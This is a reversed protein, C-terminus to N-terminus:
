IHILSLNQSTTWVDANADGDDCVEPFEVIGNGCLPPVESPAGLSEFECRQSEEVDPIGDNDGDEIRDFSLGDNSFYTWAETRDIVGDLPGDESRDIEIRTVHGWANYTATERHFLEGTTGSTM